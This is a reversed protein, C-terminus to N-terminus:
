APLCAAEPLPRKGLTKPNRSTATGGSISGAARIRLVSAPKIPSATEVATQHKRSRTCVRRQLIPGLGLLGVARDEEDRGLARASWSEARGAHPLLPEHRADRLELTLRDRLGLLPEDEEVRRDGTPAAADLPEDRLHQLPPLVVLGELQYSHRDVLAGVQGLLEPDLFYGGNAQHDAPLQTARDDRRAAAPLEFLLQLWPKASEPPPPPEVRRQRARPAREVPAVVVARQGFNEYRNGLALPESGGGDAVGTFDGKVTGRALAVMSEDGSGDIVTRAEVEPVLVNARQLVPACVDVEGCLQM